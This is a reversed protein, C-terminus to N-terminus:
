MPKPMNPLLRYAYTLIFPITNEKYYGENKVLGNSYFELKTVNLPTEKTKKNLPSIKYVCF